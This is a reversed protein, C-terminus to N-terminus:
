DCPAKINEPLRFCISRLLRLQEETGVKRNGEHDAVAGQIRDIPSPLGPVAGLLYLVLFALVLTAGGELVKRTFDM